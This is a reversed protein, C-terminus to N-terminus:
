GGGANTRGGARAFPKQRHWQQWFQHHAFTKTIKKSTFVFFMILRNMEDGIMGSKGILENTAKLLQPQKLFTEAEQVELAIHFLFAVIWKTLMLNLDKFGLNPTEIFYYNILFGYILLITYDYVYVKLKLLYNM